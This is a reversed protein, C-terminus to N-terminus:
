STEGAKLHIRESKRQAVGRWIREALKRNLIKPQDGWVLFSDAGLNLAQKAIEGDGRGTLFIVPIKNKLQRLAQLFDLGNMQPMRYDVIVVDFCEDKIMRLADLASTATFVKFALEEMVLFNKTIILLDSNDDVLLVRAM